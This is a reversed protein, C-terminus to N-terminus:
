FIGVLVVLVLAMLAAICWKLGVNRKSNTSTEPIDTSKQFVPKEEEEKLLYDVHVSYLESLGRLNEISPISGGSEWKSVAQRSVQMDEALEAQTIGKKKRLQILKENLEM